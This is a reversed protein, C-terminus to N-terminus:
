KELDLININLLGREAFYLLSSLHSLTSFVHMVQLEGSCHRFSEQISSPLLRQFGRLTSWDM